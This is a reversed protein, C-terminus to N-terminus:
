ATRTAKLSPNFGQDIAPARVCVSPCATRYKGIPRATAHIVIHQREGGVDVGGDDQGGDLAAGGLREGVLFQGGDVAGALEDDRAEASLLEATSRLGIISTSPSSSYSM